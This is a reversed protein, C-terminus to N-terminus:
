TFTYPLQVKYLKEIDNRLCYFEITFCFPIDNFDVLQGNHYRFKFKLKQVRELPPDHYSVNVYSDNTSDFNVTTGDVGGLVPLPIRAFASNVRGGYKANYLNNTRNPYPNLEDYSNYKDVEM